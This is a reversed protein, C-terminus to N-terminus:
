PTARLAIAVDAPSVRTHEGFLQEARSGPRDTLALMRGRAAATAGSNPFLSAIATKVTPTLIVVETSLLRDLWARQSGTTPVANYAAIDIAAVVESTPIQSRAITIAPNVANLMDAVAQDNGANRPTAYAALEVETKLAAYDLM